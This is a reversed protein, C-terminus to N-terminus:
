RRPRLEEPLYEPKERALYKFCMQKFDNLPAEAERGQETAEVMDYFYLVWDAASMPEGGDAYFKELPFKAVCNFGPCHDVLLTKPHTANQLVRAKIEAASTANTVQYWETQLQLIQM